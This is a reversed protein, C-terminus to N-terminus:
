KMNPTKMGKSNMTSYKNLKEWILSSTVLIIKQQPLWMFTETTQGGYKFPSQSYRHESARM